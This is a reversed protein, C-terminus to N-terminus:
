LGRLDANELLQDRGAEQAAIHQSRAQSHWARAEKSDALWSLTMSFRWRSDGKHNDENIRLWLNYPMRDFNVEVIRLDADMRERGFTWGPYKARLLDVYRRGFIRAEAETAFWASANIRGIVLTEATTLLSVEAIDDPKLPNEAIVILNGTTTTRQPTNAGLPYNSGLRYGMFEGKSADAIVVGPILVLVILISRIPM